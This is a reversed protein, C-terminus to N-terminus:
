GDIEGREQELEFLPAALKEYIKERSDSVDEFAANSGENNSLYYKCVNEIKHKHSYIEIARLFYPSHTTLLVHLGFEKQLLVILEAFVLQWKPHLHIEPEDLIITGKDRITGNLLLTQLILFTKLGTSVNSMEIPEDSGNEEYSFPMIKSTSKKLRGMCVSSLMKLIADLKEETRIEDIVDSNVGYYLCRKLHNRHDFSSTRNSIDLFIPDNLVFPDDIYVAEMRLSDADQKVVDVKGDAFEVCFCSGRIELTVSSALTKDHAIQGTFESDFKKNIIRRHIAGRNFTLYTTIEKKIEQEILQNRFYAKGFERTLEDFLEEDFEGNDFKDMFADYNSKLSPDVSDSFRPLYRNIVQRRATRIQEEVNSFSNFVAFLSKSLTSKGTNNEGAVVTIGNLELVAESIKGINNIKLKM